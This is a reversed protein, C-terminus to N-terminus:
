SLCLVLSNLDNSAMAKSGLDPLPVLKHSATKCEGGSDKNPVAEDKGCMTLHM